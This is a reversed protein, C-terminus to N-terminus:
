DDSFCLGSAAPAARIVPLRLGPRPLELRLRLRDRLGAARRRRGVIGVPGALRDVFETALAVPRSVPAIQGRAQALRHEGSLARDVVERDLVLLHELFVHLAQGLLFLSEDAAPYFSGM